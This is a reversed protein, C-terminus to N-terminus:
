MIWYSTLEDSSHIVKPAMLLDLSQTATNPASLQTDTFSNVVKTHDFRPMLLMRDSADKVVMFTANTITLTTQDNGEVNSQRGASMNKLSLDTSNGTWAGNTLQSGTTNTKFYYTPGKVSQIQINYPDFGNRGENFNDIETEAKTKEGNEGGYEYGMEADINFNPKVYWLWENGITEQSYPNDETTTLTNSDSIKAYKDGQKVLFASATVGAETAAGAYLRAYGPKVDYTVYFDTKVSADQEQYENKIKVYPDDYLSNSTFTTTNGDPVWKGAKIIFPSSPM